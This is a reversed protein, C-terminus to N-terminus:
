KVTLVASESSKKYDIASSGFFTDLLKSDYLFRKRTSLKVVFGPGSEQTVGEDNMYKIIENKLASMQSDLEDKRAKAARYKRVNERFQKEQDTLKTSMSFRWATAGEANVINYLM